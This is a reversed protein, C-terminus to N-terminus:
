SLFALLLDRIYSSIEQLIIACDKLWNFGSGQKREIIASRHPDDDDTERFKTPAPLISCFLCFSSIIPRAPIRSTMMMKPRQNKARSTIKPHDQARVQDLQAPAEPSQPVAM